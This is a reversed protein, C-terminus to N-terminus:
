HYKVSPFPQFVLLKLACLKKVKFGFLNLPMPEALVLSPHIVAVLNVKRSTKPSLNPICYKYKLSHTQNITQHIFQPHLKGDEEKSLDRKLEKTGRLRPNSMKLIAPIPYM